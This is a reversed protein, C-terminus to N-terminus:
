VAAFKWTMYISSYVAEGKNKYKATGFIIFRDSNGYEMDHKEDHCFERNKPPTVSFKNRAIIAHRYMIPLRAHFLTNLRMVILV